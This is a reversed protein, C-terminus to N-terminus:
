ALVQKAQVLLVCACPPPGPPCIHARHLGLSFVLWRRVSLTSSLQSNTVELAVIQSALLGTKVQDLRFVHHGALLWLVHTAQVLFSAPVHHLTLPASSPPTSTWHIVLWFRDSLTSCVLGNTVRLAFMRSAFVICMTSPWPPLYPYPPSPCIPGNTPHWVPYGAHGSFCRGLPKRINGLTLSVM